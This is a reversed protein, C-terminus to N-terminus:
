RGKKNPRGKGRQPKGRGREPRGQGRDDSNDRGPKGRGRTPKGRDNSNADNRGAGRRNQKKSKSDRGSTGRRHRVPRGREPKASVPRDTISKQIAMLERDIEKRAEGGTVALDAIGAIEYLALIEAISLARSDGPLMMDIRLNAFATRKLKLVQGGVAEVIRRVERNRGETMIFLYWANQETNRIHEVVIPKAPGDKLLLGRGIADIQERNLRGRVKVEYEKPTGSSPHTLGHVLDGDNSLLLAGESHYDLRGASVLRRDSSILDFVTKRGNEDKRSCITEVPKYLLYYVKKERQIDRGDVNVRDREPDVKTGLETVVKNNVKVRGKEILEEAKRRSCIGAQAIIKQLREGSM